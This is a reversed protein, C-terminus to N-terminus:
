SHVLIELNNCNNACQLHSDLRPDTDLSLFNLGQIQLLIYSFIVVKYAPIIHVLYFPIVKIGNKKIPNFNFFFVLFYIELAPSYPEKPIIQPYDCKEIYDM